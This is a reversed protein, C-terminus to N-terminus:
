GLFGNNVFRQFEAMSFVGILAGKPHVQERLWKRAAERYGGGDMLVITPIGTKLINFLLLPYKEDVSGARQQWKCEVILDDPFKERNIVFFDCKRPTEYISPGIPLQKLYQKGGIAKRNEFAHLKHNWFETYGKAKLNEEVFKELVNGTRQAKRGSPEPEPTTGFLSSQKRAV